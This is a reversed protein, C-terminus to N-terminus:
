RALLDNILLNLLTEHRPSLTSDLESLAIEGAHPFICQWAAVLYRFFRPWDNESPELALWSVRMEPQTHVWESVLLSKGFGASASVLLFPMHLGENLRKLLRARFVRSAPLRPM